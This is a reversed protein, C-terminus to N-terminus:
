SGKAKPDSIRHSVNQGDPQSLNDLDPKNTEEEDGHPPSQKAAIQAAETNKTEDSVDVKVTEERNEGDLESAQAKPTIDESPMDELVSADSISDKDEVDDLYSANQNEGWCRLENRAEETLDKLKTYDDDYDNLDDRVNFMPLQFLKNFAAVKLEQSVGELFFKEITSEETIREVDAITPLDQPDIEKADIVTLEDTVDVKAVDTDETTSDTPSSSTTAIASTDISTATVLSSAFLQRSTLDAEIPESAEQPTVDGVSLESAQKEQEAKKKDSWRQLFGKKSM